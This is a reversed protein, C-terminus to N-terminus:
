RQSSLYQISIAIVHLNIDRNVLSILICKGTEKKPVSYWEKGGEREGEKERDDM